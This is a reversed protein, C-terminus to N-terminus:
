MRKWILKKECKALYREEAKVQLNKLMLLADSIDAGRMTELTEILDAVASFQELYLKKYINKM